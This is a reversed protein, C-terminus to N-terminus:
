SGCWDKNRMLARGNHYEREIMHGADVALKGLDRNDDIITVIFRDSRDPGYNATVYHAGDETEEIMWAKAAIGLNREELCRARSIEPGNVDALRFPYVTGDEVMMDGSDVDDWEFTIIRSGPM